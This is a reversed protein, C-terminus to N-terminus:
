HLLCVGIMPPIMRLVLSRSLLCLYVLFFPLMEKRHYNYSSNQEVPFEGDDYSSVPFYM